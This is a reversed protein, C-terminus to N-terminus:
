YNASNSIRYARRTREVDDHGVVLVNVDFWVATDPGVDHAHQKSIAQVSVVRMDLYGLYTM